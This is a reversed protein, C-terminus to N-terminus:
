VRRLRHVKISLGEDPKEDYPGFGTSYGIFSGDARRTFFYCGYDLFDSDTADRAPYYNLQLFHGDYRGDIKWKRKPQDERTVYGSV